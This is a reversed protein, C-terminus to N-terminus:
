SAEGIRNGNRDYVWVTVDTGGALTALAVERAQRAVLNALAGADDNALELVRMATNATQAAEIADRDDSVVALLDSLKNFDVRSRASHLDMAGQALKVLKAFGGAITLREVPHARVYKLLGGAFDGMDILAEQPLSLESNAAQESTRGTSALIHPFHQARAVDVGRQISHIWSSCSFPVVIGTTGLVSLGGVIGLRANMTKKAVEAGGPISITVKVDPPTTVAPDLEHAVAQLAQAIQQRPGPNIAPEGPPLPLGMLTVTGVGEGAAFSVGGPPGPCVEAIIELGHTVDPDDGADKVIGVRAFGDGLQRTALVFTPTDGRPLRITVTDQFEGTQLARWAAAAAAAACAGTTWGKRLAVGTPKRSPESSPETM